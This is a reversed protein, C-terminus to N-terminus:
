RSQTFTHASQDETERSQQGKTLEGTGLCHLEAMPEPLANRRGVFTVVGIGVAGEIHPESIHVPVVLLLGVNRDTGRVAKLGPRGIASLGRM